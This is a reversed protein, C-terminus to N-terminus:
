FLMIYLLANTPTYYDTYLSYIKDPRVRVEAGKQEGKKVSIRQETEM